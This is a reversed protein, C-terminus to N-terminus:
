ADAILKRYLHWTAHGLLPVVFILGVLAPLSGLLLAGAVVAGWALMPVPNAAVARVSTVVASGMGIDHDVLLPFSIVSLALALVAFLFGAGLGVVIMTWGAATGFVDRLFTGVSEPAEPGVTAMYIGYASAMWLAFVLVMMSGLGLIPGLSPSRLVGLADAWRVPQGQERRRSIEYLGVAALPGILAFGSALPFVMPLLDYRFALQALILGAIPYIVALFLVDDRAAGLDALGRRLADWLDSVEIRRVTLPGSAGRPRPKVALAHGADSVAGSLGSVALEFPNRIHDTAM